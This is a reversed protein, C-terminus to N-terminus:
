AEPQTSQGAPKPPERDLNRILGAITAGTSTANADAMRACSEIVDRRVIEAAAHFAKHAISLCASRRRPSFTAFGPYLVACAALIAVELEPSM